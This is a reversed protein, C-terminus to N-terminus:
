IQNKAPRVCMTFVFAGYFLLLPLVWEPKHSVTVGSLVLIYGHVVPSIAHHAELDNTTRHLRVQAIAAAAFGGAMLVFSPLTVNWLAVIACLCAGVALCDSVWAAAPRGFVVPLTQYGTAADASVDKFYGALVFNAYGFFVALLMWLVKWSNLSM